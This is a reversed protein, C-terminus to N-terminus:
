GTIITVLPDWYSEQNIRSDHRMGSDPTSDGGRDKEKTCTGDDRTDTLYVRRRRGDDGRLVTDDGTRYHLPGRGFLSM